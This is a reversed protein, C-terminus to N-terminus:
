AAPPGRAPLPAALRAAIRAAPISSAAHSLPLAQAVDCAPVPPPAGATACLPCELTHGAAPTGEDGAVVLKTAHRLTRM